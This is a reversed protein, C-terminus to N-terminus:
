AARGAQEREQNLRDIERWLEDVKHHAAALDRELAAIHQRCGFCTCILKPPLLTRAASNNSSPRMAQYEKPM